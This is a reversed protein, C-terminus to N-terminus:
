EARLAITEGTLRTALSSARTPGLARVLASAVHGKWGGRRRAAFCGVLFPLDQPPRAIACIDARDEVTTYGVREFEAFDDRTWTSHHAEADNGLLPGRRNANTPYTLLLCRRAHDYLKQVLERGEQPRFHELVDGMFVVDFRGLRDIVTRIDGVHVRDYLYEHLPTLYQPFVEVGEIRTRWSAPRLEDADGANWVDLYERFLMGYKGFGVGIDLISRPQLQRMANVIVPIAYPASTPM